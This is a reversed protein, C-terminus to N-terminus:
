GTKWFPSQAPKDGVQEKELEALLERIGEELVKGPRFIDNFLVVRWEGKIRFAWDVWVCPHEHVTCTTEAVYCELSQPIRVDAIGYARHPQGVVVQYKRREREKQIAHQVQTLIDEEQM